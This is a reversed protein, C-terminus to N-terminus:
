RPRVICPDEWRHEGDCRYCWANIGTRSANRAIKRSKGEGPEAKEWKTLSKVEQAEGKM